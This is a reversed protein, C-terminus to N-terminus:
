PAPPGGPGLLRERVWHARAVSAVTVHRVLGPRALANPVFGAHVLDSASGPAGGAHAGRCWGGWKAFGTPELAEARNLGNALVAAEPAAVPVRVFAILGKGYGPHGAAHVQVLTSSADGRGAVARVTEPTDSTFPVELTLGGSHATAAYGRQRALTAVGAFEGGVFRNAGRGEPIVVDGTLDAVLEDLDPRAGFAPHDEVPVEGGVADVLDFTKALAESYTLMVASPLVAPLWGTDRRVFTTTLADVTRADPDLVFAGFSALGNVRSLLDLVADDAGLPVDRALRARATVRVTPEDDGILWPPDVHVTLPVPAGWWTFGRPARVIWEDDIMLQRELDALLEPGLDHAGDPAPRVDNWPALADETM